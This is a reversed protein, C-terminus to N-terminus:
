YYFLMYDSILRPDKSSIHAFYPLKDFIVSIIANKNNSTALCWLCGRSPNTKYNRLNNM